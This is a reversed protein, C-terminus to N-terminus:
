LNWPYVNGALRLGATPKRGGKHVPSRSGLMGKGPAPVLLHRGHEPDGFARADLRTVVRVMHSQAQFRPGVFLYLFGQFAVPAYHRAPGSVVTANVEVVGVAM